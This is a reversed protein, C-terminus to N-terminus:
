RAFAHSGARSMTKRPISARAPTSGLPWMIKNESNAGQFTHPDGFISTTDSQGQVPVYRQGQPMKSCELRGFVMRHAKDPRSQRFSSFGLLVQTGPYSQSDCPTVLLTLRKRQSLRPSHSSDNTPPAYSVCLQIFNSPYRTSDKDMRRSKNPTLQTLKRPISVVLLQFRPFLVLSPARAIARLAKVM